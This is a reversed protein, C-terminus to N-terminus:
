THGIQRKGLFLISSIEHRHPLLGFLPKGHNNLSDQFAPHAKGLDHIVAGRIACEYESETINAILSRAIHKTAIVVHNTHEHLTTGDSKAYINM